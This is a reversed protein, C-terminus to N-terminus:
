HDNIVKLKLKAVMYSYELFSGGWLTLPPPSGLLRHNSTRQAGVPRMSGGTNGQRMANLLTESVLAANTDSVYLLVIM